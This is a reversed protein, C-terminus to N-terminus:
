ASPSGGRRAVAGPERTMAILRDRVAAIREPATIGSWVHAVSVGDAATIVVDSLVPDLGDEAIERNWRETDERWIQQVSPLTGLLAQFASKKTAASSNTEPAALVRIYARTLRGPERDAEEVGAYVAVRFDDAIHRALADLLEEKSAFHYILGGKSIGARAAVQDLTTALGCEPFLDAAAQLALARTDEGSRGKTRAM